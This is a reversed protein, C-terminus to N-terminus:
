KKHDLTPISSLNAAGACRMHTVRVQRWTYYVYGCMLADALREPYMKSYIATGASSLILATGQSMALTDFTVSGEM